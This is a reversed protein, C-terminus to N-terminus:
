MVVCGSKPDTEPAIPPERAPAQDAGVEHISKRSRLEFSLSDVRRELDRLSERFESRLTGQVDSIKCPQCASHEKQASKRWDSIRKPDTLGCYYPSSGEYAVFDLIGMAGDPPVYSDDELKCNSM